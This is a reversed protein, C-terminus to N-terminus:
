VCEPSDWRLGIPAPVVAFFVCENDSAAQSAHVFWSAGFVGCAVAFAGPLLGCFGTVGGTAALDQTEAKSFGAGYSALYWQWTPDAVIPYVSDPAPDVVQVLSNGRIEYHTDVDTGDADRAWPKGAGYLHLEGESSFKYAWISGDAAETLQYGGGVEYKFEHVDKRDHVITQIRLIGSNLTQAAIDMNAASDYVVTGDSTEVDPAEEAMAPLGLELAGDTSGLIRVPEDSTAPLTAIAKEDFAQASPATPVIDGQDPAVERVLNAVGEPSEHQAATAPVIGLNLILIGASAAVLAKSAKKVIYGEDNRISSQRCAFLQISGCILM